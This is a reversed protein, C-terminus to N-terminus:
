DLVVNYGYYNRRVDTDITYLSFGNVAKPSFDFMFFRSGM